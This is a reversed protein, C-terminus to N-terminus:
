TVDNQLKNACASHLQFTAVCTDHWWLTQKLGSGITRVQMVGNDFVIM